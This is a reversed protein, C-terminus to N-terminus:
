RSRRDCLGPHHGVLDDVPSLSSGFDGGNEGAGTLVAVPAGELNDGDFIYVHGANGSGDTQGPAGVIVEPNSGGIIDGIGAVAAGFLRGREIDSAATQLTAFLSGDAGDFVYAIGANEVSSASPKERPAGIIVDPFGDGTVDEVVGVAAGFDGQTTENPSNLTEIVSGDNGNIVYAKGARTRGTNNGEADKAGVVLVPTGGSIGIRAVAGGFREDTDPSSLEITEDDVYQASVSNPLGVLVLAVAM